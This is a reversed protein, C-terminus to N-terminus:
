ARQSIVWIGRNRPWLRHGTSVLCYTLFPIALKGTHCSPSRAGCILLTQLYSLCHDTARSVSHIPNPKCLSGKENGGEREGLLGEGSGLFWDQDEEQAEWVRLQPGQCAWPFGQGAGKELEEAQHVLQLFPEEM